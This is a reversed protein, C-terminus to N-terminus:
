LGGPVDVLQQPLTAELAALDAGVLNADDLRRQIPFIISAEERWGIHGAIDMLERSMERSGALAPPHFEDLVRGNPASRRLSSHDLELPGLKGAEALPNRM